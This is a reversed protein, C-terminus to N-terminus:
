GAVVCHRCWVGRGKRAWEARGFHLAAPPAQPDLVAHVHEVRSPLSAPAIPIAPLERRLTTDLSPNVFVPVSCRTRECSPNVVRHPTAVLRNGTVYQLVEGINVLLAGNTPPVAIWRDDRDRVELGGVDDQLTLTVLSFDLHAAVGRVRAVTSPQAHYGICKMLVYPDGGLWARPECGLAAAVLSVVHEGVATVDHLWAVMRQCWAPDDPWLNPGQLQWFPEEPAAAVARERGFHIQERHDRENHMRSYGRFHPSSEIALAQKAADSFAFFRAVDRLTTTCRAAALLPHTVLIAGHRQMAAFLGPPDATAVDVVPLTM